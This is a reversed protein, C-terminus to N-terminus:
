YYKTTQIGSNYDASFGQGIDKKQLERFIESYYHPLIEKWSENAIYKIGGEVDLMYEPHPRNPELDDENLIFMNDRLGILTGNEDFAKLFTGAIKINVNPDNISDFFWPNASSRELQILYFWDKNDGDTRGRAPYKIETVQSFSKEHFELCHWFDNLGVAKM